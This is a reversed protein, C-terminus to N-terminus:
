ELAARLGLQLRIAHVLRQDVPRQRLRHLSTRSIRLLEKLESQQLQGHTIEVVARRATLVERSSGHLSPLAAAAAAADLLREVPGDAPLITECGFWKLLQQHQVRPLAEQVNDATYAGVRRLGLLDPLNTAEFYPDWDLGHHRYQNFVYTFLNSHHWIDRIPKVRAREFGVPLHLRRGLSLEVRRALENSAAYGCSANLHAHTDPISFNILKAARGQELIVRAAIRRQAPTPTLVRDELLRLTIHHGLPTM